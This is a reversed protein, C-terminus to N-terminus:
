QAFNFIEDALDADDSEEVNTFNEPAAGVIVTQAAIASTAVSFGETYGTLLVSASMNINIIIRHLTQNIGASKFHSEFNVVATPSIQFKFNIRPGLGTTYESGILTGIHIDVSYFEEREALSSIEKSISSKLLNVAVTDIEIGKINGDEDRSVRSIDDYGINAEEMVNLIAKDAVSVLIMKAKNVAAIAVLPKVRLFVAGMLVILCLLVILWSRIIYFLKNKM